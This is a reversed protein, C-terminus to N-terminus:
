TGEGGSRRANLAMLRALIEGDSIDLPWGYAALVAGDLRKHANTLWTPRENYLNTLTLKKLEEPELGEPNLFGERLSDLERAAAAIAGYAPDATDEHGPPWPLPFTEFCTTNNYTPRGGLGGDGHRSSTALAWVEHVHSQLVGFFYDDDRAFAFVRSDPLTTSDVWKFVRHKAVRPTALFRTLSKTATRLDRGSRGLRWWAERRQRDRNRERAPKVHRAVYEFPAEYRAAEEHVMDAFDIIYSGTDRDTIDRGNVWRRIVDSNPKRHPNPRTLMKEAVDRSIDFPGVKVPGQFCIGSNEALRRARTLDLQSTLNANIGEVPVGDLIKETESGDDFGVMSVRVAAGDLVWPRDSEAFFISGTQQIRELTHRNAGQRISQTALLGVRKVTGQAVMERAKEHWYCCLDAERRVRGDWLAFLANVYEDGLETRLRKGGIFPPNGIIFDVNPWPPEIPHGDAGTELIADMLKINDLPQLIPVEDVLSMGNRRKWQLYGIWVVIGALEHAYENTEIGFLQGPHVRPAPGDLGWTAARVMAEREMLKLKELAVYLFNGSGCAPDLIRVSALRSVFADLLQSAETAAEAPAGKAMLGDVKAAVQEWERRLPKMMVPEILTEIDERSTYHKGLQARKRVDIIREFLTGFISPEVDAWDAEDAERLAMLNDYDIALAVPDVFIGGNFHPIHHEGFQGGSNMVVFLQSLASAFAASTARNNDIIRTVIGKPLLGVDSAFMCFVLKSLYRAVTMDNHGWDRRLSVAVGEFLRAVDETLKATTREPVLSEPDYFCRRVIELAPLGTDDVPRGTLFDDLLLTIRRTTRGTYNTRIIIRDFDTVILLPPNDLNDRYQLLQQYAADLDGGKGKYEIAFHGEYWVDAWGQRGSVQIVGKQYVFRRGRPDAEVPAPHGTLACLDEFHSQYGQLEGLTSARWRQVFRQVDM